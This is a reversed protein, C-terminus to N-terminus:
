SCPRDKRMEKAAGAGLHRAVPVEGPSQTRVTTM